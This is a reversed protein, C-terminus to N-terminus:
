LVANNTDLTEPLELSYVQYDVTNCLSMFIMQFRRQTQEKAKSTKRNGEGVTKEQKRNNKEAKSAHAPDTLVHFGAHLLDGM